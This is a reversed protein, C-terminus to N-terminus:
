NAKYVKCFGGRLNTSGMEPSLPPKNDTLVNINSEDWGYLNEGGKEPFWWGYDAVVVRPDIADSLVTKQRIKGRETEIFVWDEEKVALSKATEPHISVIPDPHSGRLTAIQRGGAHRYAPSKWSTFILPYEEAKEPESLPTEPPEHYAPLPDFGWEKLRDSYLEVKGSPTNFGNKEYKRYVKSDPVRGLQRLEKFNMGSPKLIADLCGEETDWFYKSLGLAGAL